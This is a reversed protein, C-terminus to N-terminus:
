QKELVLFRDLRQGTEYNHVEMTMQKGDPLVRRVMRIMVKGKNKFVM